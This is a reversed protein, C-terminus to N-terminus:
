RIRPSLRRSGSFNIDVTWVIMSRLVNAAIQGVAHEALEECRKRRRHGLANRAM